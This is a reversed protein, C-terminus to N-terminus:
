LYKRSSRHGGLIKKSRLKAKQQQKKHVKRSKSYDDSKRYRTFSTLASTEKEKNLEVLVYRRITSSPVVPSNEGIREEVKKAIERALMYKTGARSIARTLKKTSFPELRGSKKKVRIVM